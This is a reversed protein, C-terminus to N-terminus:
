LQPQELSPAAAPGSTVHIWPRGNEWTVTVDVGFARSLLAATLVEQTPGQALVHGADMLLCRSFCPLIEEIHHTVYLLTPGDPQQGLWAIAALVQERTPLDLGTCPEDLILLQPQAMWARALLVRQKEGQSLVGFPKEALSECRFQRLLALADAEDQENWGQWLGISAYRGSIVVKLAPDIASDSRAIQEAMAQSVWGIHRRLDQVPVKGLRQGLVEVQGQSPWTYANLISLLSTKGSGNRGVVAWHEGPQVSWDIEELIAKGQRHWSVGHLELINM